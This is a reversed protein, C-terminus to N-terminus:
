SKFGDIDHSTPKNKICFYNYINYFINNAIRAMIMIDENSYLCTM